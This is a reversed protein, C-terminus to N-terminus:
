EVEDTFDDFVLAVEDAGDTELLRVKVREEIATPLNQGVYDARIPLERHGRDLLIALQILQPRGFDVLADMAARITRGTYLVDDVLVVRKGQIGIPIDTPQLKTQSQDRVRLDDRYLSVDLTAVPVEVGEFEALNAAIRRALYVGRTHIGVIVLDEAGRNHELIEHAVRTLARRVDEQSMIQREQM